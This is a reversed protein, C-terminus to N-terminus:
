QPQQQQQQQQQKRPDAGFMSKPDTNWKLLKAKSIEKGKPSWFRRQIDQLEFDHTKLLSSARSTWASPMIAVEEKMSDNDQLLSSRIMLPHYKLLERDRILRTVRDVRHEVSTDGKRNSQAVAAHHLIATAKHVVSRELGGVFHPRRRPSSSPSQSPSAPFSSHSAAPSGFLSKHLHNSSHHHPDQPGVTADTPLMSLSTRSRYKDSSRTLVSVSDPLRRSLPVSHSRTLGGAHQESHRQTIVPGGGGREDNDDLATLLFGGGGGRGGGSGAGATISWQTFLADDEGDDGDFPGAPSSSGKLVPIGSMQRIDQPTSGDVGQQQLVRPTPTSSRDPGRPTVFTSSTNSMPQQQLFQSTSSNIESTAAVLHGLPSAPPPPPALPPKRRAGFSGALPDENSAFMSYMPTSPSAIGNNNVITRPTMFQGGGAAGGFCGFKPSPPPKTSALLAGAAAARRPTGLLGVTAATTSSPQLTSILPSSSSVTTTGGSHAHARPTQAQTSFSSTIANQQLLPTSHGSNHHGGGGDSGTPTKVLLARLAPPPVLLSQPVPTPTTGGGGSHASAALTTSPPTTLIPPTSRRQPTSLLLSQHRQHQPTAASMLAGDGGVGKRLNGGATTTDDDLFVPVNLPELSQMPSSSRSSRRKTLPMMMMMPPNNNDSSNTHDHSVRRRGLTTRRRGHGVVEGSTTGGIAPDGDSSRGVGDLADDDGRPSSKLFMHVDGVVSATHRPKRQQIQELTETSTARISLRKKRFLLPRLNSEGEKAALGKPAVSRSLEKAAKLEEETLASTPSTWHYAASTSAGFDASPTARDSDGHPSRNSGDGAGGLSTRRKGGTSLPFAVKAGGSTSFAAFSPSMVSHASVAGEFADVGAPVQAFSSMDHPSEVAHKGLITKPVSTAFFSSNFLSAAPSDLQRTSPRSTAGGGTLAAASIPVNPTEKPTQLITASSPMPSTQGSARRRGAAVVVPAKSVPNSPATSPASSPPYRPTQQSTDDMAVSFADAGFTTADRFWYPMRQGFHGVYSGKLHFTKVYCDVTSMTCLLRETDFFSLRTIPANHARFVSLLVPPGYASQAAAPPTAFSGNGAM